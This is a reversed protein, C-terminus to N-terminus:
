RLDYNHSSYIYYFVPNFMFYIFMTRIALVVGTKQLGITFWVVSNGDDDGDDAAARKRANINRTM